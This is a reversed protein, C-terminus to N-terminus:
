NHSVGWSRAKDANCEVLFTLLLFRLHATLQNFDRVREAFSVCKIAGSTVHHVNHWDSIRFLQSGSVSLYLGGPLKASVKFGRRKHRIEFNNPFAWVCARFLGTVANNSITLESIQHVGSM